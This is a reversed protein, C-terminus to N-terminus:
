QSWNQGRGDNGALPRRRDADLTVLEPCGGVRAGSGLLPPQGLRWRTRCVFGKCDDLEESGLPARATRRGIFCECGQGLASLAVALTDVGELKVHVIPIVETPGIWEARGRIRFALSRIGSLKM